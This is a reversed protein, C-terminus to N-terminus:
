KEPAPLVIVGHDSVCGCSTSTPMMTKTAANYIYSQVQVRCAGLHPPHSCPVNSAGHFALTLAIITGIILLITGILAYKSFWEIFWENFREVWSDSM